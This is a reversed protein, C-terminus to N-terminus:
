VRETFLDSLRNKARKCIFAPKDVQDICRNSTTVGVGDISVLRQTNMACRFIETKSDPWGALTKAIRTRYVPM